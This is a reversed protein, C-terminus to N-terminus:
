RLCIPGARGDMGLRVPDPTESCSTQFTIFRLEGSHEDHLLLSTKYKGLDSAVM